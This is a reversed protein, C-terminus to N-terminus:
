WRHHYFLQHFKIQYKAHFWHYLKLLSTRHPQLLQRMWVILGFMSKARTRRRKKTNVFVVCNPWFYPKTTPPCGYERSIIQWLVNTCISYAQTSLNKPVHKIRYFHKSSSRLFSPNMWKKTWMHVLNKLSVLRSIFDLVLSVIRNM